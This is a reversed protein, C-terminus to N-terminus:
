GFGTFYSHGTWILLFVRTPDIRVQGFKAIYIDIKFDAFM